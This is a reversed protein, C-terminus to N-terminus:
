AKIRMIKLLAVSAKGTQWIPRHDLIHHLVGAKGYCISMYFKFAMTLKSHYQM